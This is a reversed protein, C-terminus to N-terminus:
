SLGTQWASELALDDPQARFRCVAEPRTEIEPFEVVQHEPDPDGREGRQGARDFAPHLSEGGLSRRSDSYEALTGAPLQGTDENHLHRPSSRSPRLDRM